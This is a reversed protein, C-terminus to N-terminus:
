LALGDRSASGSADGAVQCSNCCTSGNLPIVSLPYSSASSSYLDVSLCKIYIYIYVYLCIYIYLMMMMLLRDFSLDFADEM